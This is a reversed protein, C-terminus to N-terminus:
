LVRQHTGVGTSRLPFLFLVEKLCTRQWIKRGAGRIGMMQPGKESSQTYKQKYSMIVIVLFSPISYLSCISHGTHM